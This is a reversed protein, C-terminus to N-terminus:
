RAALDPTRTLPISLEVKRGRGTGRLRLAAAPGYLQRLRERTNSRGIGERL